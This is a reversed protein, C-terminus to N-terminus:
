GVACGFVVLGGMGIMFLAGAVGALAIAWRVVRGRSLSFAVLLGLLSAGILATGLRAGTGLGCAGDSMTFADPQTWLAIGLLYAAVLAGAAVREIIARRATRSGASTTM